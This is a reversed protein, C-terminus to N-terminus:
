HLLRHLAASGPISQPRSGGLYWGYHIVFTKDLRDTSEWLNLPIVVRGQAQMLNLKGQINPPVFADTKKKRIRFRGKRPEPEPNNPTEGQDTKSPFTEHLKEKLHKM